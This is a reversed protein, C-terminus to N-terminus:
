SSKGDDGVSKKDSPVKVTRYVALPYVTVNPYRSFRVFQELGLASSFIGRFAAELEEESSLDDAREEFEALPDFSAPEKSPLSTLLGLMTLRINPQIGYAFMLNELSADVFCERKLNSLVQFSSASEFPYVRLNIQDRMLTDVWLKVGHVLWDPLAGIGTVDNLAERLQTEAQRLRNLAQARNKDTANRVQARADDVRRSQQELQQSQPTDSVASRAIFEGLDNFREIITTLNSYDEIVAWGEARIYAFKAVEDHIEDATPDGQPFADNIDLAAGYKFLQDEVRVLIDHHVIRSELTASRDSEVLSRVTELRRDAQKESLIEQLLGGELQSYISAVKNFDLYLLDRLLTTENPM